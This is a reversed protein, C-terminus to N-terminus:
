SRRRWNFNITDFIMQGVSSTSKKSNSLVVVATHSHPALAVFAYCGHTAGVHIYVDPVRRRPSQVHWGLGSYTDSRFNSEHHREFNKRLTEDLIKHHDGLHMSLFKLLDNVTSKLGLAGEFSRYEWAPVEGGQSNGQALRSQQEDNLIIRTDNMKLHNFLYNQLLEDFTAGGAEEIIETLLAYATHSYTYKEGSPKTLVYKELFSLLDEQTYNIYPQNADQEKSGFNHPLKPFGSSHNALQLLTVPQKLESFYQGITDGYSLVNKHEIITLLATTFVKTVSGIEYITNADPTQDNGKRTEGFSYTYTSDPDIIGISIGPTEKFNVERKIINKILKDLSENQAFIFAPYVFLSFFIIYILKM